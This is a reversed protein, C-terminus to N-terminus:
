NDTARAAGGLKCMHKGEALCQHCSKQQEPDMFNAKQAEVLSLLLFILPLV